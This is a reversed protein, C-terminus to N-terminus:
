PRIKSELIGAAHRLRLQSLAVDYSANFFDRAVETRRSQADLVESQVTMGRAYRLRSVRLNEDAHEVTQTAVDLRATAEQRDNWASLLELSVQLKLDELLRGLSASRSLEANAARKKRGGDLLSWDVVVAASAIAQPTQFRNEEFEYRGVASVQPRRAALLRQAEFYRSDASAKLQLLEPRQQWAIQKLQDMSRPLWPLRLEHLQFHADLPRGLLRNYTARATQLRHQGRLRNQSASATTVQAALLDNRPVRQQDFLSKVEAENASLSALDQQAVELERQARLVSLYAEGISLLLDSRTAAAEHQSASLNAQAGLISNKIRGSTYIPVRVQAEVAAAERQAFPFRDFGPLPNQVRFSPSDNRVIYSSRLSVDPLRQARTSDLDLASAGNQYEAAALRPSNALAVSWADDLTEALAPPTSVLSVVALLIVAIFSFNHM